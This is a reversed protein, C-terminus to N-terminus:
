LSRELALQPKRICRVTAVPTPPGSAMIRFGSHMWRGHECQGYTKGEECADRPEAVQLLARPRDPVHRDAHCLM